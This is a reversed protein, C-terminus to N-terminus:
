PMALIILKEPYLTTNLLSSAKECASSSYKSQSLVPITIPFDHSLLINSSILGVLIVKGSVITDYMNRGSAVSM